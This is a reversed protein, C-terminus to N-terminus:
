DNEAGIIIAGASVFLIGVITKFDIMENLWFFGIFISFIYGTSLLPHLISLSGHKFAIIMLVAGIFYSILGIFLYLFNEGNSVKWTAQGVSTFIASALM